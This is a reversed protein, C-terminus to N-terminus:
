ETQIIFPRSVRQEVPLEEGFPRANMDFSTLVNYFIARYTGDALPRHERSIITVRETRSGGAPVVIPQSLCGNTEAAWADVWRNGDRRQLGPTIAGNCNVLYAAGDRPATFTMVITAEPGYRGPRLAYRPADVEIAPGEAASALKEVAWREIAHEKAEVVQTRGSGKYEIVFTRIRQPTREIILIGRQVIAVEANGNPVFAGYVLTRQGLDDVVAAWRHGDEWIPQGNRGVTVDSRLEVREASRDGNLDASVEKAYSWRSAEDLRIREADIPLALPPSSAPAPACTRLLLLLAAATRM